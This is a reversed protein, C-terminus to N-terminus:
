FHLCIRYLLEEIKDINSSYWLKKAIRELLIIYSDNWLKDKIKDLFLNKVEKIFDNKEIPTLLDNFDM